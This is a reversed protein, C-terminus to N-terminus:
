RKAAPRQKPRSANKLRKEIEAERRAKLRDFFEMNMPTEHGIWMAAQLHDRIDDGTDPHVLVSLNAPNNMQLWQVVEAFGESTIDVEINKQTHPGVVKVDYVGKVHEPFLKELADIMLRADFSDFPSPTYIHIHYGKISAAEKNWMDSLTNKDPICM